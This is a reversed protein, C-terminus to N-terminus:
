RIDHTQLEELLEKYVSPGDFKLKEKMEHVMRKERRIESKSMSLSPPRLAKIFERALESERVGKVGEKYADYAAKKSQLVGDLAIKAKEQMRKKIAEASLTDADLDEDIYNSFDEKVHKLSKGVNGITKRLSVGKKGM